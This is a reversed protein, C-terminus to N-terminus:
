NIITCGASAGAQYLQGAVVYFNGPVPTIIQIIGINAALSDTGQNSPRYVPRVIDVNVLQAIGAPAWVQPVLDGPACPTRVQVRFVPVSSVQHVQTFLPNTANTNSLNAQAADDTPSSTVRSALRFRVAPEQEIAGMWLNPDAIQTYAQIQEATRIRTTVPRQTDTQVQYSWQIGTLNTLEGAPQRIPSRRPMADPTQQIPWLYSSTTDFITLPVDVTRGLLRSQMRPDQTLWHLQYFWNVLTPPVTDMRLQNGARWPTAWGQQSTATLYEYTGLLALVETQNSLRAPARPAPQREFGPYPFLALDYQRDGPLSDRLVSTTDVRFVPRRYPVQGAQEFVVPTSTAAVVGLIPLDPTLPQRSYVLPRRPQQDMFAVLQSAQVPLAQLPVVMGNADEDLVARYRGQQQISPMQAIDVLTPLQGAFALGFPYSEGPTTPWFVKRIPMEPASQASMVTPVSASPSPLSWAVYSTAAEDSTAYERLFAMRTQYQVPPPNGIDQNNDDFWASSSSYYVTVYYSNAFMQASGGSYVSLGFGFNSANVNAPSLTNGWLDSSSGYSYTTPTTTFYSLTARSYGQPGGGVFMAVTNDLVTSNVNSYGKYSFVVGLITATGPVSFGFGKGFLYVSVQSASLLVSAYGSTSGVSAVSSWVATGGAISATTGSTALTAGTNTTGGAILPM